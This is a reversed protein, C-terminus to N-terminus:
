DHVLFNHSPFPSTLKGAVKNQATITIYDPSYRLSSFHALLIRFLGSNPWRLACTLSAFFAPCSEVSAVRHGAGVWGQGGRVLGALYGLATRFLASYSCYTALPGRLAALRLNDTGVRPEYSM